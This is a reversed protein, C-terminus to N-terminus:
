ECEYVSISNGYGDDFGRYNMSRRLQQRALRLFRRRVGPMRLKRYFRERMGHHHRLRGMLTVCTRLRAWRWLEAEGPRAPGTVARYARWFARREKAHGSFRWAPLMFLFAHLYGLDEFSCGMRSAAFDLVWLQRSQTLLQYPAMEGHIRCLPWQRPLFKQRATLHEYIVDRWGSLGFHALTEQATPRQWAQLLVAWPDAAQNRDLSQTHLTGLWRGLAQWQWPRSPRGWRTLQRDWRQGGVWERWLLDRPADFHIARPPRVTEQPLVLRAVERSAQFEAALSQHISTNGPGKVLLWGERGQLRRLPYTGGRFKEKSSSRALTM